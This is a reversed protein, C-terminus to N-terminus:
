RAGGAPGQTAEVPRRGSGGPHRLPGSRIPGSYRCKMVGVEDNGLRRTMGGDCARGLNDERECAGERIMGRLKVGAHEVVEDLAPRLLLPIAARGDDRRDNM